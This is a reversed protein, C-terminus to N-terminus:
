YQWMNQELHCRAVLTTLIPHRHHYGGVGNLQVMFTLTMHPSSRRPTPPITFPRSIGTSPSVLHFLQLWLSVHFVSTNTGPAAFVTDRILHSLCCFHITESHQPWFNSILTHAPNAGESLKRFFRNGQQARAAPPRSCEKAEVHHEGQTKMADEKEARHGFRGSKHPCLGTPNPM